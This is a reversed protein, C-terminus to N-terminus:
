LVTKMGPIRRLGEALVFCLPITLASSVLFKIMPHIATFSFVLTIPVLVLPHIIYAAFTNPGALKVVQSEPNVKERMWLTLATSISICTMGLWLSTVATRWNLGSIYPDMGTDIAGTGILFIPLFIIMGLSMWKWFPLMGASIRELWNNHYALIGAIFLTIYFPFFPLFYPFAGFVRYAETMSFFQATLFTATGMLLGAILLSRTNPAPLLKRQTQPRLNVVRSVVRWLTYAASFLLLASLFWTPGADAQTWYTQKSFDWFSIRLGNNRWANLYNPVRSLVWTYAAMPIALRLLRDKWFRVLGKRDYAGPTFNGSLFFFLGMFFSQCVMLFLSLVVGTVLDNATEDVFTWDGMAGFTCAAHVMVVLAFLIMRTMDIYALRPTAIVNTAV